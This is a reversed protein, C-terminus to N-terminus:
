MLGGGGVCRSAGLLVSSRAGPPGPKQSTGSGELFSLGTTYSQSVACMWLGREHSDERIRDTKRGMRRGEM